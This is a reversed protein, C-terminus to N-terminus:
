QNKKEDNEENFLNNIINDWIINSIDKKDIISFFINDWNNIVLNALDKRNIINLDINNNEIFNDYKKIIKNFEKKFEKKFYKIKNKIEIFNEDPLIQILDKINNNKIYNIIKKDTLNFKVRHIKIYEEFKLKFKFWNKYTLVFGEKNCFPDNKMKLLTNINKINIKNVIPFNTPNNIYLEHVLYKNNIKDYIALLYLDKDNWYDIVIKNEKYIIECLYVFDPNLNNWYNYKENLIELWIKAQDSHFSWRTSVHWKNNYNFIIWLSWDKKEQVIFEENPITFNKWELEEYNFFKPFWKAIVNEKNDLILWRCNLTIDNWIWQYQCFETYNYIYLEEDQHKNKSILWKIRYEELIKNSFM